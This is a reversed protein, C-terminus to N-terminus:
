LGLWIAAGMTPTVDGNCECDRLSIYSLMARYRVFGCWGRMIRPASQLPRRGEEGATQGEGGRAQSLEPVIANM